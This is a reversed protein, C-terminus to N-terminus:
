AVHANVLSMILKQYYDLIRYEDISTKMDFIATLNELAHMTKQHKEIIDFTSNALCDEVMTAVTEDDELKLNPLLVHGYHRLKQVYNDKVQGIMNALEKLEGNNYSRLKEESFIRIPLTM